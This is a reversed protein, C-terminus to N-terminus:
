LFVLRILNKIIEFGGFDKFSNNGCPSKMENREHIVGLSILLFRDEAM